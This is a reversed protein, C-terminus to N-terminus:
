LKSSVWVIYGIVAHNSRSHKYNRTCLQNCVM